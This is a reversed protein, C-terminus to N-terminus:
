VTLIYILTNAIATSLSAIMYFHGDFLVPKLAAMPDLIITLNKCYLLLYSNSYNNYFM